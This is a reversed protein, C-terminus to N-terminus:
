LLSRNVREIARGGIMTKGDGTPIRLCVYRWDRRRIGELLVQVLKSRQRCFLPASNQNRKRVEGAAHRVAFGDFLGSGM